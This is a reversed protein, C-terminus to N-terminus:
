SSTPSTSPISRAPLAPKRNPLIAAAGMFNLVALGLFTLTYSGLVDYLYGALFPLAMTIFNMVLQSVGMITAFYRRGFYDGRIATLLPTRGGFGMGYLVAFAFVLPLSHMAAAVLMSAGQIAVFVGIAINKDRLRDGLFGGVLQFVVGTFTYTAVVVGAMTLSLDMDTLAPVIHVSMTSVSAVSLTHTITILWFARTKIAEGLTFSFDGDRSNNQAQADDFRSGSPSDGDPLLGYDEPRNRVMLSLPIALAWVLFALGLATKRWGFTAILWALGPVLLGGVNFGTMGIAMAKSRNRAFWQNIATMLPLWGGLGAGIFMVLFAVYFVGANQVLSLLVFGAGLLVMGIFIMRRSGLRDTLIGEVPGLLAGEARSLSFAGSLVARSWGFQRELAVFFIGLGQFTSGGIVALAVVSTGVIKWGYFVRPQKKRESSSKAPEQVPTTM